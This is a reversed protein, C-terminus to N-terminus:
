DVTSLTHVWRSNIPFCCYVDAVPMLSHWKKQWYAPQYRHQALFIM